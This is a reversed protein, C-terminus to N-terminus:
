AGIAKFGDAIVGAMRSRREALFEDYECDTWGDWLAHHELDADSFGREYQPWYECPARDSIEINDPWEVFGMNAIQNVRSTSSIGIKELYARPFLHHREVADKPSNVGPTLVARLQIPHGSSTFPLRADLVCLAGSYAFLAPGRAASTNLAQPLTIRWYDDTLTTAVVSELRGLFADGGEGECFAQVDRTIRTEFSGTYRGTLAAMFFYRAIPVRLAGHDLGFRHRGLLYLAYSFVASNASSIEKARYFGAVPLSKLFEHWTSLDLTKTIAAGLEDFRQQRQEATPQDEGNLVGSRLLATVSELQGRQFATLVAVRLLQEPEPKILHNFPSSAGSTPAKAAKAFAELRRRDQERFVSMLTLIFDSQILKTGGSNIRLFIEAVQEDNASGEIENAVFMYTDLNHVRSIAQWLEDEEDETVERTERLREIFRKGVRRESELWLASIDPLFEPDRETAADAVEFRGDHPRFAIRVRETAFKSNTVETGTFVSYLSTLRQQGDVIFRTPADQKDNKGVPKSAVEAATNWLLIYGVPFGRYMSDFLDRVKSKRWVFPRQLEPLALRGLEIDSILQKVQYRTEKFLMEAM